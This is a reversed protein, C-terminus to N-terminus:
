AAARTKTEDIQMGDKFRVGEIVKPLQNNEMIDCACSTDPNPLVDYTRKQQQPKGQPSTTLRPAATWKDVPRRGTADFRRM